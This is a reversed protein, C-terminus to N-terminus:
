PAPRAVGSGGAALQGIHRAVGVLTEFQGTKVFYHCRGGPYLGCVDADTRSATLVAVPTRWLVPEAGLEALVERGSRVPLNLDLVIVDPQPADRFPGQRRLFQLAQGGDEAVHLRFRLSAARLAEQLLAVDAPNDEVVLMVLDSPAAAM